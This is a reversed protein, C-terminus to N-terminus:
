ALEVKVSHFHVDKTTLLPFGKTLDFEMQPTGFLEYVGTDTRGKKEPQSLLPGVWRLYEYDAHFPTYDQCHYPMIGTRKWEELQNNM